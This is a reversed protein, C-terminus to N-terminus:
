AEATSLHTLNNMWKKSLMRRLGLILKPVERVMTYLYVIEVPWYLVSTTIAVLPVGICSTVLNM